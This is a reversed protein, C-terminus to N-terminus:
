RNDPNIKLIQAADKVKKPNNIPLYEPSFSPTYAFM